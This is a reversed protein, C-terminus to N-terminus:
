QLLGSTLQGRIEGEKHNASHVNVYLSDAKLARIQENDLTYSADWSGSTKDSNVDPKLTIIPAGNEGEAGKHIHSAAYDSTLGSFEGEVHISDGELTLTVSGEADTAVEPVENEGELTAEFTEEETTDAQPNDPQQTGPATGLGGDTTPDNTERSGDGCATILATGTLLALTITLIRFTSARTEM